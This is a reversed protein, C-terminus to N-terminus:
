LASYAHLARSLQWNRRDSYPVLTTFSEVESVAIVCELFVPM